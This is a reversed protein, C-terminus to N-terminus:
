GTGADADLNTLTLQLEFGAKGHEYGPNLSGDHVSNLECTMSQAVPLPVRTLPKPSPSCGALVVFLGLALRPNFM